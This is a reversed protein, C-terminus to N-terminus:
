RAWACGAPRALSGHVRRRAHDALETGLWREVAGHAALAVFGPPPDVADAVLVTTSIARAGGLVAPGHAGPRTTDIGDRLVPRGDREVDLRAIVTADQAPEGTRGLHLEERWLLRGGPAVAVTTAVNLGGGAAVITPAVLWACFGRERVTAQVSVRASGSGPCPHVMTAAASRVTLVDGAGVSLHVTLEDGELLSAASGVLHLDWGDATRHLKASLPPATALETVRGGSM